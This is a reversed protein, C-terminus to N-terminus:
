SARIGRRSKTGNPYGKQSSLKAFAKAVTVEITEELDGIQETLDAFSSFLAAENNLNTSKLSPQERISHKYKVDDLISTLYYKGVLNKDELPSRCIAQLM